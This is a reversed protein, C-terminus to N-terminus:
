RGTRVPESNRRRAKLYVDISDPRPNDYDLRTRGDETVSISAPMSSATVYWGDPLVMANRPRGFSRRWVLEDGMLAYRGPDTYTESIRLRVTKGKEVPAFRIVVAESDPTVREGIDIGGKTIADGRLTEVKLREGTDLVVASPNSARSGARVLNVYKDTGARTETYDHYLDFAHTDPPQLFYVIERDQFARESIPMDARLPPDPAPPAAPAASTTAARESSPAPKATSPVAPKTATAPLARAKLTMTPAGPFVNMFSVKIRGNSETIVQSPVNCSVIEYGPPLVIANRKIGLSRSFVILDGERYYSKPDKYTKDIRIRAEGGQPVPRALHVKLYSTELDAGALGQSRADKGSVVEMKLPAGSMLDVASEDSAESGPRIPNFFFPAGPFTATVDYLIRFQASEPALLEYRTYDDAQTQRQPQLTTQAPAQRAPLHATGVVVALCVSSTHTLRM